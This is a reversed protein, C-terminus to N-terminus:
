ASRAKRRKPNIVWQAKWEFCIDLGIRERPRIAEQTPKDSLHSNWEGYYSISKNQKQKKNKSKSYTLLLNPAKSINPSSHSLYPSLFPGISFKKKNSM